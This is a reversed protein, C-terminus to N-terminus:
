CLNGAKGTVEGAEAKGCADSLGALNLEKCTGFEARSEQTQAKGM